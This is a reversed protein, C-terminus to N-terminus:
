LMAEKKRLGQYSANSNGEKAFYNHIESDLDIFWTELSQTRSEYIAVLCRSFQSCQRQRVPLIGIEHRIKSTIFDYKPGGGAILIIIQIYLPDVFLSTDIYSNIDDPMHYFQNIEFFRDM